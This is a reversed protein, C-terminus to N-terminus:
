LYAWKKFSWRNVSVAGVTNLAVMLAQLNKGYQVTAKIDAPFTGQKDSGHMPCNHVLILEHATVTATVVADVEHRTEKVCAKELCADHYPCNMCDSHM